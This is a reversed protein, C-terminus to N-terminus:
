PSEVDDFSVLDVDVYEVRGTRPNTWVREPGDVEFVRGAVSVRDNVGIQTGAPFFGRHTARGQPRGPVEDSAVPQVSCKVAVTSEQWTPEGLPDLGTQTRTTVVCDETLLRRM